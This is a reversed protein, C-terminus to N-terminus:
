VKSILDELLATQIIPFMLLLMADVKYLLIITTVATSVFKLNLINTRKLAFGHKNQLLM